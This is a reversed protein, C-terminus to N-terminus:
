DDPFEISFQVVCTVCGHKEIGDDKEDEDEDEEETDEAEESNVTEHSLDVHKSSACETDMIRQAEECLDGLTIGRAKSVIGNATTTVYYGCIKNVEMELLPPHALRIERWRDGIVPLGHDPEARTFRARWVTVEMFEIYVFDFSVEFGNFYYRKFDWNFSLQGKISPDDSPLTSKVLLRDEM